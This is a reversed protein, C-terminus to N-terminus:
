FRHHGFQQPKVLCRGLYWRYSSYVLQHTPAEVHQAVQANGDDHVITPIYTTPQTTVIHHTAQNVHVRTLYKGYDFICLAM